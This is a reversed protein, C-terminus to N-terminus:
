LNKKKFINTYCTKNYRRSSIHHERKFITIFSESAKFNDWGLERVKQIAFLELGSDHIAEKEITRKVYFENRMFEKITKFKESKTGNTKICERFRKIYRRHKVKRFRNKIRVIKYNPHQDVWEVIDEIEELTFHNQINLYQSEDYDDINQEEDTSDGEDTMEDYEDHFDLSQYNYLENL